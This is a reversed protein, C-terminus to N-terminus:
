NTRVVDVRSAPAYPNTPFRLRVMRKVTFPHQLTLGDFTQDAEALTSALAGVPEYCHSADVGQFVQWRTVGAPSVTRATAEAM